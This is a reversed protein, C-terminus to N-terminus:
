EIKLNAERIVRGYVDFQKRLYAAFPAGCQGVANVGQTVLRAKTQPAQVAKAFWDALQSVIEPPTKAPAFAGYWIDLEYDKLGSEAVTPVDPLWDIRRSSGIALARLTGAQLQGATAPYDVLAAVIHEGLVANVAQNTGQYNVYTM